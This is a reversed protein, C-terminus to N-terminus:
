AVRRERFQIVGISAVTVAQPAVVFHQGPRVIIPTERLDFQVPITGATTGSGADSFYKYFSGGAIAIRLYYDISSTLSIGQISSTGLTYDSFRLTAPSYTEYPSASAQVAACDITGLVASIKDVTSSYFTIGIIEAAYLTGSPVDVGFGSYRGGFAAVGSSFVVLRPADVSGAFTGNSQLDGRGVLFDVRAAVTDTNLVEMRSFTRAGDLTFQDGPSMPIRYQRGQDDEFQVIVRSPGDLYRIVNSQGGVQVPLANAQSAPVNYLSFVNM